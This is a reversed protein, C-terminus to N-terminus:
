EKLFRKHIYGQQDNYSVECWQKCEIVDVNKGAPVVAVVKADNDGTARLNVHSTVPVSRVAAAQPQAPRSNGISAV